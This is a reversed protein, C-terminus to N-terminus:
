CCMSCQPSLFHCTQWPWWCLKHMLVLSLSLIQETDRRKWISVWEASWFCVRNICLQLLPEILHSVFTVEHPLVVPVSQNATMSIFIYDLMKLTQAKYVQHSLQAILCRSWLWSTLSFIILALLLLGCFYRVALESPHNPRMMIIENIYNERLIFREAKLKNVQNWCCLSLGSKFQTCNECWGGRSQQASSEVQTYGHM